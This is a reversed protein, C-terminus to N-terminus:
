FLLFVIDYEALGMMFPITILQKIFCRTSSPIGARQKLEAMM